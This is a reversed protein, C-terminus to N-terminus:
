VCHMVYGPLMFQNAKKSKQQPVEIMLTGSQAFSPVRVADEIKGQKALNKSETIESYVDNTQNTSSQCSIMIKQM